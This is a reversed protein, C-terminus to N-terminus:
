ERAEWEAKPPCGAKIWELIETARWKPGAFDVPDPLLGLRRKADLTQRSVGLKAALANAAMLLPESTVNEAM